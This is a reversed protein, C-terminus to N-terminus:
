FKGFLLNSLKSYSDQSRAQIKAGMSFSSIARIFHGIHKGLEFGMSSM